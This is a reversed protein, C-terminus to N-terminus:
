LRATGGAVARMSWGPHGHRWITRTAMRGALQWSQMTDLLMLIATLAVHGVVGSRKRLPIRAQRAVRVHLVVERRGLATAATM